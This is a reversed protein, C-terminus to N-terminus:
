PPGTPPKYCSHSYCVPVPELGRSDAAAGAASAAADTRGIRLTHLAFSGGGGCVAVTHVGGPVTLNSGYRRLESGQQLSTAAILLEGGQAHVAAINSHCKSSDLLISVTSGPQADSVVVEISFNADAAGGFDVTYDARSGGGNGFPALYAEFKAKSDPVVTVDLGSKGRLAPANGLYKVNLPREFLCSGEDYFPASIDLPSTSPITWPAAKQTVASRSYPRSASCAGALERVQQPRQLQQHQQQQASSATAAAARRAASPVPTSPPEEWVRVYDILYKQRAGGAFATDDVAGGTSAQGLPWNGGVAHNLILVFAQDFPKLLPNPDGYFANAWPVPALIEQDGVYFAMRHDRSREIAFRLFTGQPWNLAIGASQMAHDGASDTAYHVTSYAAMQDNIHEMIDLEGSRPWIGYSGEGPYSDALMWAAPWGGNYMPVSVNVEVRGYM